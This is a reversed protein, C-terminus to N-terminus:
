LPQMGRSAWASWVKVGVVWPLGPGGGPVPATNLWGSRAPQVFVPLSGAAGMWGLGAPAIYAIVSIQSSPQWHFGFVLVDANRVLTGRQLWGPM